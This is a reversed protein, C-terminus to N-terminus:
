LNLLRSRAKSNIFKTGLLYKQVPVRSRTCVTFYIALLRHTVNAFLMYFTLQSTVRSLFKCNGLLLLGRPVLIFATFELM